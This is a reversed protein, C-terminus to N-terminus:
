YWRPDIRAFSKKGTGVLLRRRLRLGSQGAFDKLFFLGGM